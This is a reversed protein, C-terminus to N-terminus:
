EPCENLADDAQSRAEDLKIELETELEDKEKEYNEGDEELNDISVQLDEIDSSDGRISNATTDLEDAWVDLNQAREENEDAVSSDPFYERPSAASDQYEEGVERATEALSELASAINEVDGADAIEKGLDEQAEWIAVMKSSSTMSITIQHESCVVVKGRYRPKAWKYSDGANIPTGCVRCNGQAKRASKVTYTRAM